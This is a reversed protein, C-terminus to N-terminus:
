YTLFLISSIKIKIYNWIIEYKIEYWNFTINGSFAVKILIIFIVVWFMNDLFKELRDYRVYKEPDKLIEDVQMKNAEKYFAISKELDFVNFNFHAFEIM